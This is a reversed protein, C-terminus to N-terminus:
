EDCDYSEHFYKWWHDLDAGFVLFHIHMAVIVQPKDKRKKLTRKVIIVFYDKKCYEL